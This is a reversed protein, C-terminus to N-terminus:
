LSGLTLDKLVQLAKCATCESETKPHTHGQECKCDWYELTTRALWDEYAKAANAQDDDSFIKRAGTQYLPMCADPHYIYAAGGNWDLSL